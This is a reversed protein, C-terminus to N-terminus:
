MVVSPHVYRGKNQTDSGHQIAHAPCRHLCALCMTCSGDWIPNGNEDPKIVSMPCIESCLGCATCREDAYLKSTGNLTRVEQIPFYPMEPASTDIVGNTQAKVAAIIADLASNANTFIADLRSQSPVDSWIIFNDPMVLDFSGNYGISKASLAANLAASEFGSNEGCTFVGFTYQGMYGKLVLRELFLGVIGPLTGAFVPVVFGLRGDSTIDYEFAGNKWAAGIDVTQDDLASAIKVATYKSNGTATFYFIM